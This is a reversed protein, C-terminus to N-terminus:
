FDYDKLIAESWNLNTDYIDYKTIFNQISANFFLYEVLGGDDTTDCTGDNNIDGISIYFCYLWSDDGGAYDYHPSFDYVGAGIYM